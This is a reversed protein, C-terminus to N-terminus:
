SSIEKSNALSWVTCGDRREELRKVKGREELPKMRPSISLRDIDTKRSIERTSMPGWKRLADLVIGETRTVDVKAAAEKSAAPDSRRACGTPPPAPTFDFSAQQNV